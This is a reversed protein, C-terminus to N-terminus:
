PCLAPEGFSTVLPLTKVIDGVTHTTHTQSLRRSREAADIVGLHYASDVASCFAETVPVCSAEMTCRVRLTCGGLADVVAGEGDFRQLPCVVTLMIGGEPRHFDSNVFSCGPPLNAEVLVRKVKQPAIHFCRRLQPEIVGEAQQTIAPNDLLIYVQALWAGEREVGDKEVLRSVIGASFPGKVAVMGHGLGNGGPMVELVPPYELLFHEKGGLYLVNSLYFCVERPTSLFSHIDRRAGDIELQAVSASGSLFSSRPPCLLDTSASREEGGRLVSPSSPSQLPVVRQPELAGEQTWVPLLTYQFVCFPHATHVHTLSTVGKAFADIFAAEISRQSVRYGVVEQVAEGPVVSEAVTAKVSLATIASRFSRQRSLTTKTESGVPLASPHQPPTCETPSSSVAPEVPPSNPRTKKRRKKRKRRPADFFGEEVDLLGSMQRARQIDHPSLSEDLFLREQADDADVEGRNTAEIHNIEEMVETFTHSILAVPFSISLGGAIIAFCAVVKGWTTIPYEDGYGVTTLTSMTWWFVHFISQFPAKEGDERYWTNDDENFTQGGDNTEAIFMVCSFFFTALTLFFTLLSLAVVSHKLTFIVIQLPKSYRGLKLVRLVRITRFLRIVAVLGTASSAELALHLYYPVVSVLDVWNMSDRVFLLESWGEDVLGRIVLDFTFVATVATDFVFFMTKDHDSINSEHYKPQSEICILVVSLFILLLMCVAFLTSAVAIRKNPQEATPDLFARIKQKLTFARKEVCVAKMKVNALRELKERDSAVSFKTLGVGVASGGVSVGNVRRPLRSMVSGHSRQSLSLSHMRGMRAASSTPSHLPSQTSSGGMSNQRSSKVSKADAGLSIMGLSMERGGSNALEASRSSVVHVRKWMGRGVPSRVTGSSSATKGRSGFQTQQLDVSGVGRKLISQTRRLPHGRDLTTTCRAGRELGELEGHSLLSFRSASGAGLNSGGPTSRADISDTRTIHELTISPRRPIEKAEKDDSLLSSAQSRLDFRDPNRLVSATSTYVSAEQSSFTVSARRALPLLVEHSKGLADNSSGVSEELHLAATYLREQPLPPLGPPLGVVAPLGPLAVPPSTM